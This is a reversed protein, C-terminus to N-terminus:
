GIAVGTFLQMVTQFRQQSDPHTAQDLVASIRPMDTKSLGQWNLGKERNVQSGYRFPERDFCVHFVTAALAYLDDAPSVPARTERSPSCYLMTGPSTAADGVRTVFDYDTLVPSSGSVIINKPSVDGHILGNRHLVDLAAALQQMWRILLQETTADGFDEALLSVM